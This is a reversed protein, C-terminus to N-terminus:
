DTTAPSQKPILQPIVPAKRARPKAKAKPKDAVPAPAPAEQIEAEPSPLPEEFLAELEEGELTEKAILREAILTLKQKNETLIKHAVKNANRIIKDIEADIIDATKDSYDKQESIERGLFVLEQKDGFTRPGLKESMGFDTVMKRALITARKIDDQAGTTVENFILKEATHGALLFAIMDNFQSPTMLYRDETLMKTYGLAM